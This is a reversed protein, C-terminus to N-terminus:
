SIIEKMDFNYKIVSWPFESILCSNEIGHLNFEKLLLRM